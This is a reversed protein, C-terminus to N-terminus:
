NKTAVKATKTTTPAADAAIRKRVNAILAAAALVTSEPLAASM